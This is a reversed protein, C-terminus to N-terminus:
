PAPRLALPALPVPGSSTDQGTVVRRVFSAQGLHYAAHSCLHMLFRDTPLHVGNVAEPFARRFAEEPLNPLVTEVDHIAARVEAKVDERAGERRGFERERNRVYGTGGLVAGVYHRLNGSVHLALNASSNAIGPGTKWAAADDPFLDLERAFTSLERVLLLALNEGFASM